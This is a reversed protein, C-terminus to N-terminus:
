VRERVAWCETVAGHREDRDRRVGSLAGGIGRVVVRKIDGGFEHETLFGVARLLDNM